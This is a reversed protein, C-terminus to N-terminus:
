RRDILRPLLGFRRLLRSADSALYFCGTGEFSISVLHVHLGALGSIVVGNDVKEIEKKEQKMKERKRKWKKKKGRRRGRGSGRREKWRTQLERCTCCSWRGRTRPPVHGFVFGADLDRLSATVHKRARVQEGTIGAVCMARVGDLGGFRSYVNREQVQM